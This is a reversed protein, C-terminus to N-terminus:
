KVNSIKKMNTYFTPTVSNNAMKVIEGRHNLVPVVSPTSSVKTMTITYPYLWMDLGSTLLTLPNGQEDVGFLCIGLGTYNSGNDNTDFPIANIRTSGSENWEAEALSGGSFIYGSASGDDNIEAIVAPYTYVAEGTTLQLVPLVQGGMMVFNNTQPDFAAEMQMYQSEGYEDTYQVGEWGLLVYTSGEELQAISLVSTTGAPQNRTYFSIEWDGIWNYYEEKIDLQSTTFREEILGSDSGDPGIAIACARVTTNAPLTFIFGGAAIAEDYQAKSYGQGGRLAELIVQETYQMAEQGALVMFAFDSTTGLTEITFSISVGGTVAGLDEYKINLGLDVATQNVIVDQAFGGAKVTLVCRRSDEGSNAAVTVTIEGNESVAPNIIWDIGEPIEVEPTVNSVVTGLSVTGGAPDVEVQELLGSADVSLGSQTVTVPVNAGKFSVTVTTTREAENPNAAVTVAVINANTSVTCWDDAAVAELGVGTAGEVTVNQTGANADFSLTQPNVTITPTKQCSVAALGLTMALFFFIKKM